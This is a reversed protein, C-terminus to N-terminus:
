GSRRRIVAAVGVEGARHQEPPERRGRDGLDGVARPADGHRAPGDERRLRHPGVRQEHDHTARELGGDTASVEDLPDPEGARPAQGAMEPDEVTARARYLDTGALAARDELQRARTWPMTREGSRRCRSMVDAIWMSTTRASWAPSRGCPVIAAATTRAARSAAYSARARARASAPAAAAGAGAPGRRPTHRRCRWRLRRDGPGHPGPARAAVCAADASGGQRLLAYRRRRLLRVAADARESGGALVAGGGLAVATIVVGDREAMLARGSPAVGGGLAALRVLAAAGASHLPPHELIPGSM